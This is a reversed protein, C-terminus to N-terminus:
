ALYCLHDTPSLPNKQNKKEKGRSDLVSRFGICIHNKTYNELLISNATIIVHVKTKM